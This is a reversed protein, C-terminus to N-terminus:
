GRGSSLGKVILDLGFAFEDDLAVPMAGVAALTAPFASPDIGRLMEADEALHSDPQASLQIAFGLVYRALTAYSRAALDPSFGNALLVALCRERLMMANPGFPTRELLLQAVGPHHGLAAFMGTAIAKCSDQWPERALSDADLDIEGFVRDVVHAVLQARNAYHRYLTATGSGLRQALTRMSLASAGEADVLELAASVIRESGISPRGPSRRTPQQTEPRGTSVGSM